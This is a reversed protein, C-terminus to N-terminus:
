VLTTTGEQKKMGRTPLALYFTTGKNEESEFWVTGDSHDVISKVIYLGLGTGEVSKQRVNDARFLKSFIKNQQQKPIGLGSDKISFCLSDEKLEVTAFREGTKMVSLAMEISGGDPTYKIANSLFNQFLMRLLKQDFNMQPIGESINASLHISKKDTSFKQEDIVNRLLAATDTPAPDMSFTGLDIRSVNLLAGVLEVMHLTEAHVEDVYKKQEETLSGVQAEMLMEASWRIAALPTNLQHSALSVFETKAKDIEKFSTIDEETAVYAITRDNKVIPTIHDSVIYLRGDRRRNIIEGTVIKRELKRRWMDRYYSASMLAGWLRPTQGKMEKFSFGTMKEAAMNAYLIRGDPDTVVVHNSTQESIQTFMEALHFQGQFHELMKLACARENEDVCLAEMQERIGAGSSLTARRNESFLSFIKELDASEATTPYNAEFRMRERGIGAQALLSSLADVFSQPGAIFIPRTDAPQIVPALDHLTPHESPSAFYMKTEDGLLRMEDAAYLPREASAFAIFSFNGPLRSRLISLFPSAGTGGSLMIAGDEPPIFASGAPGILEVEDGANLQGVARQYDNETLRILLEIIVADAASAISFARRDIAGPEASLHPLILWVYQGAKFSFNQPKELALSLVGPSTEKREIVRVPYRPERTIDPLPASAMVTDDM